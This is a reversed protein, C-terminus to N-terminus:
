NQIAQTEPEPPRTIQLSTLQRALEDVKVQTEELEQKILANEDRLGKLEQEAKTRASIAANLREQLAQTNVKEQNLALGLVVAAALLLLALLFVPSFSIKKKAAAPKAAAKEQKIEEIM